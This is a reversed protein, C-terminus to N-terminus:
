ASTLVGTAGMGSYQALGELLGLCVGSICRLILSLCYFHNRLFSLTSNANPGLLDIGVIGVLFQILASVSGQVCINVATNNM